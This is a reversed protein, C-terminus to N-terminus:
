TPNPCPGELRLKLEALGAQYRRHATPVSCNVLQAFEDSTLGGWLRAVIPEREELPLTALLRTADDADLLDDARSFWSEAVRVADERRRRRGASRQAALAAN